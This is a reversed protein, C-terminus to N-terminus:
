ESETYRSVTCKVNLNGYVRRKPNYIYIRIENTHEPVEFIPFDLTFTEPLSWNRKFQNLSVGRLDIWQGSSDLFSVAWIFDVGSTTFTFDLESKLHIYKANVSDTWITAIGIFENDGGPEDYSSYIMPVLKARSKRELLVVGDKRKSWIVNYNNSDSFEKFDPPSLLLLDSPVARNDSIHYMKKNGKRFINQEAHFLRDMYHSGAITYDARKKNNILEYIEKDIANHEWYYVSKTNLQTMFTIPIILTSFLAIQHLRFKEFPFFLLCGILLYVFYLATRDIPGPTDFILIGALTGGVSSTFIFAFVFSKNFVFKLKDKILRYVFVIIVLIIIALLVKAILIYPNHFVINSVTSLNYLPFDSSSGYYLMGAEKLKLLHILFLCIVTISACVYVWFFVKSVLTKTRNQVYIVFSGVILSSFAFFLGLQSLLGLVMTLTIWLFRISKFDKQFLILQYIALSLFAFSLGYGRSLSFFEFIPFISNLAVLAIWFHVRNTKQRAIGLNSFFYIPFALINALRIFLTDHGFLQTSCWSLFSNLLHNNADVQADPGVFYGPEIYLFYSMGEDPSLPVYIGRLFLVIMLFLFYGFVFLKERSSLQM